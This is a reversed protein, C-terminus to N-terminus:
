FGTKLNLKYEMFYFYFTNLLNLNQIINILLKFEFIYCLLIFLLNVLGGTFYYFFALLSNVSSYFYSIFSAKSKNSVSPVPVM